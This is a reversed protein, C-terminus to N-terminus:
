PLIPWETQVSGICLHATTMLINDVTGMLALLATPQLPIEALIPREPQLQFRHHQHLQLQLKPRKLLQRNM